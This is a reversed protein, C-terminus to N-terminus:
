TSSSGARAQKVTLTIKHFPVDDLSLDIGYTGPEPFVINIDEQKITAWLSENKPNHVGIEYYDTSTDPVRLRFEGHFKPEIKVLAIVTLDKETHPFLNAEITEIGVANDLEAPNDYDPSGKFVKLYRVTPM